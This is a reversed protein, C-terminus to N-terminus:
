LDFFIIYNFKNMIHNSQLISLQYTKNRIVFFMTIDNWATNSVYIVSEDGTKNWGNFPSSLLIAVLVM